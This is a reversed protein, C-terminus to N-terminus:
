LLGPNLLGGPDHEAKLARWRALRTAGLQALLQAEGRPEVGMLYLKGGAGLGFAALEELAPLFRQVAAPELEPRVAVMLAFPADPLPALPTHGATPLVMLATGLPVHAALGAALVRERVAELLTTGADLDAPDLPLVLEVAPTAPLWHEDPPRRSRAFYDFAEVRPDVRGRFGDLAPFPARSPLECAHGIAGHVTGDAWFARGRFIDLRGDLSARVADELYDRFSAWRVVRAAVGTPRHVTALTAEVLVGLQGRGALSWDFLPDGPRVAHREGDVTMVTLAHVHRTQLGLLHSRDGFGGVALSGAVSVRWNMTLVPLWRGAPHLRTQLDEFWLGGEVTVRAADPEDRVVRRLWRLDVVVGDDTLAQGGSSHGSGRLTVPVGRRSLDRLCTALQEQDKPRVAALPIKRLYKGFDAAPSTMFGPDGGRIEAPFSAQVSKEAAWATLADPGRGAPPFAAARARAPGDVWSSSSAAPDAFLIGDLLREDRLWAAVGDAVPLAAAAVAARLDNLQAWEDPTVTAALTGPREGLAILLADARDDPTDAPARRPATPGLDRLSARAPGTLENTRTRLDRWFPSDPGALREHQLAFLAVRAATSSAVRARARDVDDPSTPSSGLRALLLDLQAPLGDLAHLPALRAVALGVAVVNGADSAARHFPAAGLTRTLPGLKPGFRAQLETEAADADTATVRHALHRGRATPVLWAPGHPLALATAGPRLPSAHRALGALLVDGGLDLPRPPLGLTEGLLLAEPGTADVLLPAELRAGDELVLAEVRAERAVVRTLPRTELTVGTARALDLLLARLPPLELLWGHPADTVAHLAGGVRAVPARDAAMLTAALSARALDGDHTLADAVDGALFPLPLDGVWTGLAPLPRLTAVFRHPEVPLYRHLLPLLAPTTAAAPGEAAPDGHALLTVRAGPARERAVLAALLGAVGDGVVVVDSSLADTASM